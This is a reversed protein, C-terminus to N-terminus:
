LAEDGGLFSGNDQWGGGVKIPMELDNIVTLNIQTKLLVISLFTDGHMIISDYM